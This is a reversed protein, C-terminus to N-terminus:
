LKRGTPPSPPNDISPKEHLTRRYCKKSLNQTFNICTGYHQHPLGHGWQGRGYIIRHDILIILCRFSSCLSPLNSKLLVDENYSQEQLYLIVELRTLSNNVGKSQKWHSIFTVHLIILVRAKSGTHYSHLM